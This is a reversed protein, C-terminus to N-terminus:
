APEDAANGSHGKRDSAHLLAVAIWEGDGADEENGDAANRDAKLFGLRIAGIPTYRHSYDTTSNGQKEVNKKDERAM